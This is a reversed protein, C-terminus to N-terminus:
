APVPELVRLAATALREVLAADGDHGAQRALNALIAYGDPTLVSEPHFQVGEVPLTRHRVGMVLGRPDDALRASVVLEGDPAPEDAALAHYRGADFPTPVGALLGAGDHAIPSSRGHCARADPRVSVGFAVAICQHGLCIGLVPVDRGFTRIAATSIGAEDPGQPGPSIVLGSPRLAAIEDLRTAHSPVVRSAVGLEALRHEVNRVFSDRNDLIVIV